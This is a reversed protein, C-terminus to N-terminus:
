VSTSLALPEAGDAMPITHESSKISANLGRSSAATLHDRRNVYFDVWYQIPLRALAGICCNITCRALFGRVVLVDITRRTSRVLEVEALSKASTRFHEDPNAGFCFNTATAIACPSTM